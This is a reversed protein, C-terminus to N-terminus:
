HIVSRKQNRSELWNRFRLLAQFAEEESDAEPIGPVLLTKGDYAHRSRASILSRFEEELEEPRQETIIIAGEPCTYGIEIDGGQWCYAVLPTPTLTDTSM